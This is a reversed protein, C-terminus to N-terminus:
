HVCNLAYEGGNLPMSDLSTWWGNGWGVAQYTDPIQFIVTTINKPHVFIHVPAHLSSLVWWRRRMIIPIFQTICVKTGTQFHPVSITNLTYSPTDTLDCCPHHPLKSMMIPDRTQKFIDLHGLSLNERPQFSAVTMTTEPIVKVVPLLGLLDTTICDKPTQPMAALFRHLTANYADEQRGLLSLSRVRACELEDELARSRTMLMSILTGTQVIVARKADDFVTNQRQRIYQFYKDILGEHHVLFLRMEDLSLSIDQTTHSSCNGLTCVPCIVNQCDICFHSCPRSHSPCIQVAERQLVTHALADKRAQHRSLCETGLWLNCQICLARAAEKYCGTCSDIKKPTCGTGAASNASPKRTIDSETLEKDQFNGVVNPANEGGDSTTLNDNSAHTVTQSTPPVDDNKQNNNLTERYRCGNPRNTSNDGFSCQQTDKSSPSPHKKKMNAGLESETQSEESETHDNESETQNEKTEDQDDKPGEDNYDRDGNDQQHSM